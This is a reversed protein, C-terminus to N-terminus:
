SIEFTRFADAAIIHEFRDIVSRQIACHPTLEGENFRATAMLAEHCVSVFAFGRAWPRKVAKRLRSQEFMVEFRLRKLNM